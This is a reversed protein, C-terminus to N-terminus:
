RPLILALLFFLQWWATAQSFLVYYAARTWLGV